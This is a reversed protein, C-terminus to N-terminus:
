GNMGGSMGPHIMLGGGSSVDIGDIIVAICPKYNRDTWAHDGSSPAGNRCTYIADNKEPYADIALVSGDDAPNSLIFSISSTTTPLLVIRYWTNAEITVRSSLTINYLGYDVVRRKLPNITIPFGSVVTYEDSDYMLIDTAYDIDGIFLLGTIRCRFPYRFKIGRRNPNTSSNFQNSVNTSVVHCNDPVSIGDSYELDIAPANSSLNWAGNIYAASYPANIGSGITFISVGRTLAISSDSAAILRFTIAILDGATVSIGSSGNISTFNNANSSLNTIDASEAGSAYLTKSTNTTAVPQGVSEAVAEVSIKLTYSTGSVTGCYWGIKKLTGSKPVQIILALFEEAADLTVSGFYSPNLALKPPYQINAIDAMSM